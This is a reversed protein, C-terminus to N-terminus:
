LQTGPYISHHYQGAKASKHFIEQASGAMPTRSTAKPLEYDKEITVIDPTDAKAKWEYGASALGNLRLTLTEGKRLVEKRNM